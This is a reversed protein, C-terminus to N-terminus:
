FLFHITLSQLFRFIIELIKVLQDMIPKAYAVPHSCLVAALVYKEMEDPAGLEPMTEDIIDLVRGERVLSWAWDTLLLTECHDSSIIVKKGSLIKFLMVGFSYVDSKESLQGYLAYELAVYGLTGVVKTSLHTVGEATFKVFGFNALKPKFTEDM